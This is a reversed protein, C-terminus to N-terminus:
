EVMKDNWDMLYFSPVDNYAVRIEGGGWLCRASTQYGKRVTDPVVDNDRILLIVVYPIMKMNEALSSLKKMIKQIDTLASGAM